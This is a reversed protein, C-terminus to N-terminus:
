LVLEEGGCARRGCHALVHKCQDLCPSPGVVAKLAQFRVRQRQKLMLVMLEM